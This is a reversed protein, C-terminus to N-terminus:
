WGSFAKKLGGTVASAASSALDGVKDVAKSALNAAGKYASEAADAVARGVKAGAEKIAPWNQVALQAVAAGAGVGKLIMGVPAGVGTMILANGALDLSNAALGLGNNLNLGNKKIDVVNSAVGAASFALGTVPNVRAVLGTKGALKAAALAGNATGLTDYAVKVAFSPDKLKGPDNVVQRVDGVLSVGSIVGRAVDAGAAMKGLKTLGEAGKPAAKAADVAPAAGDRVGKFAQIGKVINEHADKVKKVGKNAADARDAVAGIEEHGTAKAVAGVLPLVAGGAGSLKEGRSLTKGADRMQNLKDALAFASAASMLIGGALKPDHVVRDFAQYVRQGAGVAGNRAKTLVSTDVAKPDLPRTPAAAARTPKKLNSTTPGGERIQMAGM